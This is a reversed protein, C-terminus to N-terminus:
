LAQLIFKVDGRHVGEAEGVGSRGDREVREEEEEVLVMVTVEGGAVEGGAVMRPLRRRRVAPESVVAVEGGRLISLPLRRSCGSGMGCADDSGGAEGAEGGACTM